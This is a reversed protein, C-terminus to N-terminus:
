KSVTNLVIKPLQDIWINIKKKLITNSVVVTCVGFPLKKTKHRSPLIQTKHFTQIGTVESWFKKCESEDLDSYIFLAIRIKDRPVKCIEFLFAMFIKIMEPDTNTLRTQNRTLKDGEGWYLSIGAIFLPNNRYEQLEELAKIASTEYTANLTAGRIKNLSKMRETSEFLNKKMLTSKIDELFDIGKFWKSLTSKSMGLESCIENYGKGQMRLAIANDKDVRMYAVYCLV